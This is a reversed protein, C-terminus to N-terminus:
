LSRHNRERAHWLRRLNLAFPAIVLIWFLVWEWNAM